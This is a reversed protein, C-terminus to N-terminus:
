CLGSCGSSKPPCFGTQTCDKATMMLRGLNFSGVTSTIFRGKVPDLLQCLPGALPPTPEDLVCGGEPSPDLVLCPPPRLSADGAREERTFDLLSCTIGGIGAASVAAKKDNQECLKNPAKCDCGTNGSVCDCSLTGGSCSSLTAGLCCDDDAALGSLTVSPSRIWSMAPEFICKKYNTFCAKQKVDSFCCALKNRFTSAPFLPDIKELWDVLWRFSELKKAHFAALRATMKSLERHEKKAAGFQSMNVLEAPEMYARLFEVSTFVAGRLQNKGGKDASGLLAGFQDEVQKLRETSVDTFERYWELLVTLNKRMQKQPLARKGRPLRSMATSLNLWNLLIANSM